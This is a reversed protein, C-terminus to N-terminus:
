SPNPGTPLRVRFATSGPASDFTLSGGHREVVIRRAIDLGLGTGAGVAKTTFFADFARRQVDASMGSGTDAVTVVVDEGDRATSVTLTGHGSMADVANDILNTWVQNLEGAYADILPVDAAYDREVTIDPRLKHGLMTLTSDLGEAVDVRQMAARDMQTYSKVSAVLGSVRGTSEAIEALLSRISVTTAIWEVGSGLAEDGVAALLRECWGLDAGAAALPAALMWEHEVGHRGLWAGLEDEVDAAALAGRDPPQGTLELRLRDLEGYQEASIGRSALAGLAALADDLQVQLSQVARATAAAPNNLEHALGASITGLRVLSERERTGAEIARATTLLGAIIHRAVPVDALLDRLVPNPVKLLRGPRTPRGTAYYTAHEDWAGFGGAWRGPEDLRGVIAEEGGAFRVMDVVGELSVWWFLSPEGARFLEGDAAFMVEESRDLLSRLADDPIGDFLTLTRVEDFLM